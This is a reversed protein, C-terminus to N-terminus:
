IEFLKSFIEKKETIDFLLKITILMSFTFAPKGFTAMRLIKDWIKGHSLEAEQLEKEGLVTHLEYLDM